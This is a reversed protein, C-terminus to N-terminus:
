RAPAHNICARYVPAHRFIEGGCFAQSKANEGGFTSELFDTLYTGLKLNVMQPRTGAPFAARLLKNEANCKLSNNLV